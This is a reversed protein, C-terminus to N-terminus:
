KDRFNLFLHDMLERATKREEPLWTLMSSVFSLRKERKRAELSPFLTV